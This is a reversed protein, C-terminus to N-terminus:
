PLKGHTDIVPQICKADHYEADGTKDYGIRKGDHCLRLCIEAVPEARYAENVEHCRKHKEEIEHEAQVPPEDPVSLCAPIVEDRQLLRLPFLNKFHDFYIDQHNLVFRHVTDPM